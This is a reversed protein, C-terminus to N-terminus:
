LNSTTSSHFVKIDRWHVEMYDTLNDQMYVGFQFWHQAITKNSVCKVPFGDIFIQITQVNADHIVNLQFWREYINPALVPATYYTLANNYVKIMLTTPHGDAGFVQMICVGETGNKVWGKGEFQWIGSSYELPRMSMESRPKTPSTPSLPKDTNLVWFQHTVGDFSYRDTPKLDYPTHLIFHSENLPIQTFGCTPDTAAAPCGSSSSAPPPPSEPDDGQLPRRRRWPVVRAVTPEMEVWFLWIIVVVLIFTLNCVSGM